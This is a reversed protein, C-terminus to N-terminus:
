VMDIITEIREASNQMTLLNNEGTQFYLTRTLLILVISLVLTPVILLKFLYKIFLSFVSQDKMKMGIRQCKVVDVFFPLRFENNAKKTLATWIYVARM